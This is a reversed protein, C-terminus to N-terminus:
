VRRGGATKARCRMSRRDTVGVFGRKQQEACGGWFFPNSQFKLPTLPLPSPGYTDVDLAELIAAGGGPPPPNKASDTLGEIGIVQCVRRFAQCCDM